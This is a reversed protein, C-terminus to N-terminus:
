IYEKIFGFESLIFYLKNMLNYLGWSNYKLIYTNINDCTSVSQNIYSSKFTSDTTSPNLGLLLNQFVFSLCINSLFIDM